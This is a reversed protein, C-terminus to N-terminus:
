SEIGERTILASTAVLEELEHGLEHRVGRRIFCRCCKAWYSENKNARYDEFLKYLQRVRDQYDPSFMSTYCELYGVPMFRRAQKKRQRELSEAASEKKKM